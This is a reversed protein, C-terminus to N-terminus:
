SPSCVLRWIRARKVFIGPVEPSIRGRLAQSRCPAFRPGVTWRTGTGPPFILSHPLKKSVDGVVFGLRAVFLGKVPNKPEYFGEGQNEPYPYEKCLVIGFPYREEDDFIAPGHVIQAM